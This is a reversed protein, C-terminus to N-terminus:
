FATERGKKFVVPRYYAPPKGKDPSMSTKKTVIIM